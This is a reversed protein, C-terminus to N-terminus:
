GPRDVLLDDARDIGFAPARTAEAALVAVHHGRALDMARVPEAFVHDVKAKDALGVLHIRGHEFLNKAALEDRDERRDRLPGVALGVVDVGVSESAGDGARKFSLAEQEEGINRANEIFVVPEDLFQPDVVNASEDGVARDGAAHDGLDLGANVRQLPADFADHDKVALNGMRHQDFEQGVIARSCEDRSLPGLRYVMRIRAISVEQPAADTATTSLPRASGSATILRGIVRPWASAKAGITSSAIRPMSPPKGESARMATAIPGPEKVPMRMPRAIDGAIPMASPIGTTPTEVRAAKAAGSKLSGRVPIM